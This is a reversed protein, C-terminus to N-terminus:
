AAFFSAVSVPYAVVIASGIASPHQLIVHGRDQRHRVPIDALQAPLDQPKNPDAGRHLPRPPLARWAALGAYLWCSALNFSRNLKQSFDAYGCLFRAADRIELKLVRKSKSGSILHRCCNSMSKQM